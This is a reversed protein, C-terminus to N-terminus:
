HNETFQALRHPFQYLISVMQTRNSKRKPPGIKLDCQRESLQFFVVLFFFCFFLFIFFNTAQFPRYSCQKSCLFNMKPEIKANKSYSKEVREKRRERTERERTEKEEREERKDRERNRETDREKERETHTYTHRMQINNDTEINFFTHAVISRGPVM